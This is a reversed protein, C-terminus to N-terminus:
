STPQNAAPHLLRSVVLLFAICPVDPHCDDAGILSSTLVGSIAYLAFNNGDGFQDYAIWNSSADAAL